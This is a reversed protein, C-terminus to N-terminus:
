LSQTKRYKKILHSVTFFNSSYKTFNSFVAAFNRNITIITMTNEEPTALNRFFGMFQATSKLEKRNAHAQKKAM